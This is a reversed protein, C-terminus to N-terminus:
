FHVKLLISCITLLFLLDYLARYIIELYLVTSLLTRQVKFILTQLHLGDILHMFRQFEPTLNNLYFVTTSIIRNIPKDWTHKHACRIVPPSHAPHTAIVWLLDHQTCGDSSGTSLDVDHLLLEDERTLDRMCQRITPTTSAHTGFQIQMGRQTNRKFRTELILGLLQRNGPKLGRDDWRPGCGEM